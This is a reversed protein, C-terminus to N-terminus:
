RPRLAPLVAALPCLEAPPLTETLERDFQDCNDRSDAAILHVFVTCPTGADTTGKWVRCPFGNIQTLHKTPEMTIKM